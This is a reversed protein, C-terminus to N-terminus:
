ITTPKGSDLVQIFNDQTCKELVDKPAGKAKMHEKMDSATIYSYMKARLGTTIPVCNRPWPSNQPTGSVMYKKVPIFFFKEM